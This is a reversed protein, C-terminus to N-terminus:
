MNDRVNLMRRVEKDDSELLEIAKNIYWSCKKLDEVPTEHKKRCRWIYKFANGICFYIVGNVGISEQMADICEISGEYHQPHNINDMKRKRVKEALEKYHKIAEEKAIDKELAKIAMEYAEDYARNYDESGKLGLEDWDFSEDTEDAKLIKIAEELTM